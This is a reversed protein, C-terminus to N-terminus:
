EAPQTNIKLESVKMSIEVSSNKETRYETVNEKQREPQFLVSEAEPNKEKKLKSLTKVIMAIEDLLKGIEKDGLGILDQLDEKSFVIGTVNKGGSNLMMSLQNLVRSLFEHINEKLVKKSTSNIEIKSSNILLDIQYASSKKQDGKGFINELVVRLDVKLKKKEESYIGEATAKYSESRNFEIHFNLEGKVETINSNQLDVRSNSLYTAATSFQTSDTSNIASIKQSNTFNNVTPVSLNYLGNEIINVAM